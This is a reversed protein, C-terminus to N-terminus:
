FERQNEEMANVRRAAMNKQKSQTRCMKAWHNRGDCNRCKTGFAPCKKKEYKKGCRKCNFENKQNNISQKRYNKFNKFANVTLKENM